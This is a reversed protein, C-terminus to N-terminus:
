RRVRVPNEDYPPSYIVLLKVPTESTVKFKHMVDSPFFCTDDPAMDFSEHSILDGVRDGVEGGAEFHATGELQYCVHEM